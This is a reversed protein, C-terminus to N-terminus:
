AFPYGEKEKQGPPSILGGIPQLRCPVDVTCSADDEHKLLSTVQGNLPFSSNLDAEQM